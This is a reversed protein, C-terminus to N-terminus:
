RDLGNGRHQLFLTGLVLGVRIAIFCQTNFDSVIWEYLQEFATQSKLNERLDKAITKLSIEGHPQGSHSIPM